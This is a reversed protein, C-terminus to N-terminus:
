QKQSIQNPHGRQFLHLTTPIDPCININCFYYKASPSGVALQDLNTNQKLM